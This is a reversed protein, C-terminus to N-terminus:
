GYILLFRTPVRLIVDCFEDIEVVEAFLEDLQEMSVNRLPVEHALEVRDGLFSGLHHCLEEDVELVQPLM